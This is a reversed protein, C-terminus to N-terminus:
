NIFKLICLCLDNILKYIVSCYNCESSIVADPMRLQKQSGQPSTNIMFYGNFIVLWQQSCTVAFKCNVGRTLASRFAGSTAFTCPAMSPSALLVAFGDVSSFFLMPVSSLLCLECASSFSLWRSCLSTLFDHRCIAMIMPGGPAPFPVWAFLITGSKWIACRLVPSINRPLQDKRIACHSVQEM